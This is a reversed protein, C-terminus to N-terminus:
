LLHRNALATCDLGLTLVALNSFTVEILPALQVTLLHSIQNHDRVLFVTPMALTEAGDCLMDLHQM